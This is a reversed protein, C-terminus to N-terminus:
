DVVALELLVGPEGAGPPELSLRAVDVGAEVLADRAAEARRQALAELRAPPVEVSAVYRALLATDEEGLAGPEGRARARLAGAIRRRELRGVGDLDPLDGGAGLTEVLVAEATTPEDAPGSQGRLSLGLQPRAALLAASAAIRDDEGELWAVGGPASALPEAAPGGVGLASLAFGGMKLPSTTAGVLAQRLASQLISTVGIGTTGEALAM